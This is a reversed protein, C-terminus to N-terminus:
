DLHELTMVDPPNRRIKDIALVPDPSVGVLEMDPQSSVVRGLFARMVASDDVVLVRIM